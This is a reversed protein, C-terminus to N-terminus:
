EGNARNRWYEAIEEPTADRAPPDRFVPPANPKRARNILFAAFAALILIGIVIEM